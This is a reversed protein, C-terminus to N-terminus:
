ELRLVGKLSESLADSEGRQSSLEEDLRTPQRGGVAPPDLLTALRRSVASGSDLEVARWADELAGSSDAILARAIARNHYFRPQLPDRQIAETYAWVADPYRGEAFLRNGELWTEHGPSLPAKSM